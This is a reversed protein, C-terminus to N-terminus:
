GGKKKKFFDDFLGKARRKLENEIARQTAAALDISVQPNALTGSIRAPVIVRGDSQAVRRLDTGAQATLEKSLAVNTAADLAGSAVHLSTRGNMDFDRSALTLNSSALTGNSLNFTGALRTFASGSGQPPAGSPKGFALVITRVMELGPIVGNTIAADATGRADRLMADMNAGATAVNLDAGLQGSISGAKGAATALQTVDIGSAKGRLQMRPIAGSADLNLTGAFQGGFMKFGLAPLNVSSGAANVQATCDTFDYGAFTGRPAKVALQLKVPSSPGADERATTDSSSFASALALLEDLDLPNANVEFRMEGSHTNVEGSGELRTRASKASVRSVALRDGVLSSRLDVNFTSADAAIDVNDLAITRISVLTLTPSASPASTTPRSPAAMALAADVALRGNAAVVEADEIRRSFLGRLGTSVSVRDLRADSGDGVTVTRLQLSVRPFISAGASGIRVPRGLQATLQEELTKRVNDSSLVSRAYLALSLGAVVVVALGILLAKKVM